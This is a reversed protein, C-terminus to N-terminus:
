LPKLALSGEKAARTGVLTKKRGGIKVNTKLFDKLKPANKFNKRGKKKGATDGFIKPIQRSVWWLISGSGFNESALASFNGYTLAKSVM